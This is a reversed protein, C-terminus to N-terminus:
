DAGKSLTAPFVKKVLSLFVEDENLRYAECYVKLAQVFRRHASKNVQGVADTRANFMRQIIADNKDREAKEQMEKMVETNEPKVKDQFVLARLAENCILNVDIGQKEAEILVESEFYVSKISKAMM